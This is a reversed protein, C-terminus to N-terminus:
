TGHTFGNMSLGLDEPQSPRTSSRSLAAHLASAGAALRGRRASGAAAAAAEAAAGETGQEPGSLGVHSSASPWREAGFRNAAGRAAIAAAGAALLLASPAAAKAGEGAASAAEGALMLLESVEDVCVNM